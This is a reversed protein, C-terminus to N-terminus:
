LGFPIETMEAMKCPENSHGVCLCVSWVVDLCKYCYGVYKCRICAVLTLFTLFHAFFVLSHQLWVMSCAASTGVIGLVHRVVSTARAVTRGADDTLLLAEILSGFWLSLVRM